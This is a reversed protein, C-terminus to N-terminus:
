NQVSTNQAFWVVDNGSDAAPVATTRTGSTVYPCHTITSGLWKHIQAHGDAFAFASSTGGHFVGPFDPIDALNPTAQGSTTFASSCHVAFAGDNISAPAEEVFVFTTVPNVIASKKSYLKWPPTVWASSTCFAQNMSISRVPYYTQGNVACTRKDGPCRFIGASKGAYPWLPSNVLDVSPNWNSPNGPDLDNPTTYSLGGTIWTPRMPDSGGANPVWDKNDDAYMLWTLALQKNNNLCQAGLAKQKAKALAPLLMAALIAIIAIVVLLEILTFGTTLHRNRRALIRSPRSKM